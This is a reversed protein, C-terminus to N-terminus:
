KSEEKWNQGSTVASITQHAVGFRKSLAQAGYEKDRPIYNEKIFKVDEESLKCRSNRTGKATRLGIRYAHQLNSGRDCWELNDVSNNEKNGDIHNVEALKDPNSHYADAIVRHILRTKGGFQSRLYGDKGPFEHLVRKTKSNRIHGDTSAEYLGNLCPVWIDSMSKVRLLSQTRCNPSGIM